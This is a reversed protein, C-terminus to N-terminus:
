DGEPFLPAPNPDPPAMLAEAMMGLAVDLDEESPMELALRDAMEPTMEDHM